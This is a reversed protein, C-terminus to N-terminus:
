NKQLRSTNLRSFAEPGERLQNKEEITQDLKALLVQIMVCLDGVTNFKVGLGDQMLRMLMAKRAEKPQKALNLGTENLVDRVTFSGTFSPSLISIEASLPLNEGPAQVFQGSRNELEFIRDSLRKNEIKLKESLQKYDITENVQVINQLQSCRQAFKATALTEGFSSQELTLNAVMVTRCNGGLSDKLVSTLLSNRYPVHISKKGEKARLAAIVQELYHLSRNIYKSESLVQDSLGSKWARESGALDVIHLKSVKVVSSPVHRVEVEISFICHSRSSAQNMPTASVMRNTNGYVFFDLAQEESEVVHRSLNRLQIHGEADEQLQVKPWLELPTKADVNTILLDYGGENYIELFSVSLKAHLDRNTKLTRVERFIRSITRPIIGRSEFSQAGSATFTKGSGTQGYCFICGNFGSMLTEIVPEAVAQFVESQTVEPPLVGHFSFEHSNPIDSNQQRNGLIRLCRKNPNILDPVVDFSVPSDHCPKIRAFVSLPESRSM